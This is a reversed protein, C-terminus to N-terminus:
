PDDKPNKILEIYEKPLTEEFQRWIKSIETEKKKPINKKFSM